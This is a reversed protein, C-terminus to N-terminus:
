RRRGAPRSSTATPSAWRSTSTRCSSRARSTSATRRPKPSGKSSRHSTPAPTSSCSTSASSACASSSPAVPRSRWNTPCAAWGLDAAPRARIRVSRGAAGVDPARDRDVCICCNSKVRCWQHSLALLIVQSSPRAVRGPTATTGPRPLNGAHIVAEEAAGAEADARQAQARHVEAGLGVLRRAVLEHVRRELRADVEEVGGVDVAAGLGLLDDAPPERLATAPPLLGHERRLDVATAALPRVRRLQRRQVDTLRAVVAQPAQLGVVDVEVLHVVDVAVRRPVLDPLRHVQQDRLALHQVDAARVEGAPVDHLGVLGGPPPARQPQHRLLAQVVEVGAHDLELHQRRTLGVPDAIM